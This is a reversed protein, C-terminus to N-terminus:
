GEKTAYYVKKVEACRHPADPGVERGIGSQWFSGLPTTVQVPEIVAIVGM